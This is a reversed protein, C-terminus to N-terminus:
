HPVYDEHWSPPQRPRDPLVRKAPTMFPRPTVAAAPTGPPEEVSPPTTYSTACERIVLVYQRCRRMVDAAFCSGIHPPPDQSSFQPRLHKAKILAACSARADTIAQVVADCDLLFFYRQILQKLQHATPHSLRLHIATLLGHAVQRPVVIRPRRSTLANIPPATLLGDSEVIATQLYRKIDRINTQKRGPRTGQHLHAKVRRLEACSNQINIWAPRSTFVPGDLPYEVPAHRLVPTNIMDHIFDCVQCKDEGCETPHRSAFDAHLNRYGSLHHVAVNYRSATSVFTAVRPSNSFEGRQLKQLAQVCPKSDTLIHTQKDSQIIYSSYHHLAASIALAEVECPLWFRQHIKLRASYCGALTLGNKTKIYMNAAIGTPRMAADTAIWLEDSPTPLKITVRCKVAEQVDQFASTAADSWVLPTKPERNKIADELPSLLSACGPIVRAIAKVSGVFSKLDTTTTPLLCTALANATHPSAALTGQEWLWGLITTSRPCIITKAPSPRLSSKDLAMLLQSWNDALETLTDGGCYLDDALKAVRNEMLLDGLVRSMLKELATESGPMGMACRQYVRVGKFPTVIGCFTQSKRSLPIQHFASTLDTVILYKWKSIIRPTNNVYPM